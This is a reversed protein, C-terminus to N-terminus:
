ARLQVHIQYRPFASQREEDFEFRRPNGHEDFEFWEDIIRQDHEIAAALAPDDEAEMQSLWDEDDELEDALRLLQETDQIGIWETPVIGGNPGHLELELSDSHSQAAAVDAYETTQRIAARVEVDGAVTRDERDEPLERAARRARGLERWAANVETIRPILKEGAETPEFNGM